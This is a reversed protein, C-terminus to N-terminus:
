GGRNRLWHYWVLLLWLLLWLLLRLLLRLRLLLGLRLCRRCREGGISRKGCLLGGVVYRGHLGDRRLRCFGGFLSVFLGGRRPFGVGPGAVGVDFARLGFLPAGLPALLPGVLTSQLLGTLLLELRDLLSDPFHGLRPLEESGLRHPDLRGADPQEILISPDERASGQPRNRGAARNWWRAAAM